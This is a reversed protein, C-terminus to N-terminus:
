EQIAEFRFNREAKGEAQPITPGESSFGSLVELKLGLKNKMPNPKISKKCNMVGVM